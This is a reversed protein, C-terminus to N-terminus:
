AMNPSRADELELHRGFEDQQGLERRWRMPRQGPQERLPKAPTAVAEGSPVRNPMWRHRPSMFWRAKPRIFSTAGNTVSVWAITAAQGAPGGDLLQDSTRDVDSRRAPQAAAVGFGCSPSQYAGGFETASLGSGGSGRPRPCSGAAGLNPDARYM